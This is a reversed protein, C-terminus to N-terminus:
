GSKKELAKKIRPTHPFDAWGTHTTCGDGIPAGCRPCREAWLESFTIGTPEGNSYLVEENELDTM